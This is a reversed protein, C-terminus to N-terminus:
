SAPDLPSRCGSRVISAVRVSGASGLVRLGQVPCTCPGGDSRGRLGKSRDWGVAVGHSQAKAMHFGCAVNSSSIVRMMAEDAGREWLGFSEGLDSNFDVGPM